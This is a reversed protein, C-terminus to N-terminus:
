ANYFFACFFVQIKAVKEYLFIPNKLTSEHSAILPLLTFDFQLFKGRALTRFGDL